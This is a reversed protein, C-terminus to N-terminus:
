VMVNSVGIVCSVFYFAQYGLVRAFNREAKVGLDSEKKSWSTRLFNLSPFLLFFYSTKLFSYLAKWNCQQHTGQLSCPFDAKSSAAMAGVTQLAGQGPAAMGLCTSSFRSCLQFPLWSKSPLNLVWESSWEARLCTVGELSGMGLLCSLSFFFSSLHMVGFDGLLLEKLWFSSLVMFVHRAWIWGGAPELKGM